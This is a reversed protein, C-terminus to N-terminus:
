SEQVQGSDVLVLLLMKGSLDLVVEGWSDIVLVIVILMVGCSIFSLKGFDVDEMSDIFLVLQQWGVDCCVIVM